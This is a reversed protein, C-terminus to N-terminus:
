PIIGPTHRMLLEQHVCSVLGAGDERSDLMEAHHSIYSHMTNILETLPIAGYNAQLAASVVEFCVKGLYPREEADKAIRDSGWRVFQEANEDNLYRILLDTWLFVLLEEPTRRWGHYHVYGLLTGALNVPQVSSHKPHLMELLYTPRFGTQPELKGYEVSRPRWNWWRAQQDITMGLSAGPIGFDAASRIEDTVQMTAM